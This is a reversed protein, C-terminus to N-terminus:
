VQKPKPVWVTLDKQRSVLRTNMCRSPQGRQLTQPYCWSLAVRLWVGVSSRSGQLSKSVQFGVAPRCLMLGVFSKKRGAPAKEITSFTAFARGRM